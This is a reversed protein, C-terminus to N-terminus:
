ASNEPPTEPPTEPEPKPQTEQIEDPIRLSDRVAFMDTLSQESRMSLIDRLRLASHPFSELMKLFLSRPIRLVSSPEIATVTVPRKIETLLALEGLLVGPGLIAPETMDHAARASFAGEQVVFAADAPEGEQFLTKGAHVYLTEAGIAIIRLAERGLVNLGPITELFAIDDEIGM